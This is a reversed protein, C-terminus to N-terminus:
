FCNAQEEKVAFKDNGEAITRVFVRERGRRESDFAIAHGSILNTSRVGFYTRM